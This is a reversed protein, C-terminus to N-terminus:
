KKTEIDDYSREVQLLIQDIDEIIDFLNTHISNKVTYIDSYLSDISIEHDSIFHSEERIPSLTHIYTDM